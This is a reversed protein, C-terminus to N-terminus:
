KRGGAALKNKEEEKMQRKTLEASKSLSGADAICSARKVRQPEVRKAGKGQGSSAVNESVSAQGVSSPM